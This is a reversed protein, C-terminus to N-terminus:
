RTGSPPASPRSGSQGAADAPKPKPARLASKLAEEIRDPHGMWTIVGDRGIVCAWPITRQKAALMWARGMTGDGDFAIRYSVKDGQARLFKRIETVRPDEAPQEVGLDPRDAPGKESAAVGIVVVEPNAKQLATLHPMSRVCPGCWTAWFEVVYVKGTDFSNVPEGQVWTDVSLPPAKSGAQLVDPANPKVAPPAPPEREDLRPASQCLVLSALLAAHIM